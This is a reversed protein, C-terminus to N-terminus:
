YLTVVVDHKICDPSCFRQGLRQQLIEVAVQSGLYRPVLRDKQPLQSIAYKYTPWLYGLYVRRYHRAAQPKRSAFSHVASLECEALGYEAVM